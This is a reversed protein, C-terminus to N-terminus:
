EHLLPQLPELPQLISRLDDFPLGIEIQGASYPAIDYQNFLFRVGSGTVAFNDNHAIRDEFLGGKDGNLPEYPKLGHIQRYRQGILHDLRVEFGPVFLDDLTFQKGTLTDFVLYSTVTMGHAGGTFVYSHISVTVIGPQDLLV